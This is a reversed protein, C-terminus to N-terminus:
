LVCTSRDRRAPSQYSSGELTRHCACVAGTMRLLQHLGRSGVHTMLWESRMMSSGAGSAVYTRFDFVLAVGFDGAFFAVERLTM